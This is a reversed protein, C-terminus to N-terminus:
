CPSIREGVPPQRLSNADLALSGAALFCDLGGRCDIRARGCVYLATTPFIGQLSLLGVFAWAVRDALFRSVIAHQRAARQYPRALSCGARAALCFRVAM